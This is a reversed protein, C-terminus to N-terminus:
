ADAQRSMRYLGRGLREYIGSETKSHKLPHDGVTFRSVRGGVIEECRRAVAAPSLATEADAMVKRIAAAVTGFERRGDSFGLLPTAELRKEKHRLDRIIQHLNDSLRTNSLGGSLGALQRQRDAM